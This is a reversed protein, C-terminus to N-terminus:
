PSQPFHPLAPDLCTWPQASATYIDLMPKFGSADDLTPFRISIFQANAESHTFLPTGCAGCFSRTVRHGKSVVVAHATPTGTVALEDAMVVIGSAFPAGSAMQMAAIATSCPSPRAHAATATRAAPAAAPFRHEM